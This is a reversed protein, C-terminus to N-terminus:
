VPKGGVFDGLNEKRFEPPNNMKIKHGVLTLKSQTMKLSRVSLSFLGSLAQYWILSVTARVTVPAKQLFPEM